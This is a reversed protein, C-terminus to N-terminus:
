FVYFVPWIRGNGEAQTWIHSFDYFFRRLDIATMQKYVEVKKQLAIPAM